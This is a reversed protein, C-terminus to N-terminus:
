GRHKGHDHDGGPGRKGPDPAAPMGPAAPAGPVTPDDAALEAAEDAEWPVVEDLLATGDDDSLTATETGKRDGKAHEGSRKVTGTVSVIGAEDMSLCTIEGVLGEM